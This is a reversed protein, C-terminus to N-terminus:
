KNKKIELLYDLEISCGDRCSDDGALKGNCVHCPKIPYGCDPCFLLGLDDKCYEVEVAKKCNNCFFSDKDM